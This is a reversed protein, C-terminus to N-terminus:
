HCHFSPSFPWLKYILWVALPTRPPTSPAKKSQEDEDEDKTGSVQGATHPLHVHLGPVKDDRRMVHEM